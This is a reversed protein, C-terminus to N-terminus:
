ARRTPSRSAGRRWMMGFAALSLLSALGAVILLWPERQPPLAAPEAQPSPTPASRLAQVLTATSPAEPERPAAPASAVPEPVPQPEVALDAKASAAETPPDAPEARRAVKSKQAGRPARAITAVPLEGRSPAPAVEPAPLPPPPAAAALRPRLLPEPETADVEALLTDLREVALSLRQQWDKEPDLRPAVTLTIGLGRRAEFVVKQQLKFKYGTMYSVLGFDGAYVLKVILEHSGPALQSQLVAITGPAAQLTEIAPMALARGDLMFAAQELAYGRGASPRLSITAQPGPIAALQQQLAREVDGRARTTVDDAGTLLVAGLLALGATTTTLM